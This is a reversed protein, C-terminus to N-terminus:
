LHVRQKIKERQLEMCPKFLLTFILGLKTCLSPLHEGPWLHAQYTAAPLPLLFPNALEQAAYTSRWRTSVYGEWFILGRCSRLFRARQVARICDGSNLPAMIQWRAGRAPRNYSRHYFAPLPHPRHRQRPQEQMETVQSSAARPPLPEHDGGAKCLGKRGPFFFGWDTKPDGVTLQQKTQLRQKDSRKEWISKASLPCM